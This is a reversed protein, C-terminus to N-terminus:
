FNDIGCLPRELSVPPLDAFGRADGPPARRLRLAAIALSALHVGTTAVIFFGATLIPATMESDDLAAAHCHQSYALPGGGGRRRLINTRLTAISCFSGNARRKITKSRKAAANVKTRTMKSCHSAGIRTRLLRVM